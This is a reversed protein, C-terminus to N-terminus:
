ITSRASSPGNGFASGVPPSDRLTGGEPVGHQPLKPFSSASFTEAFRIHPEAGAHTVFIAINDLAKYCTATGTALSTGLIDLYATM